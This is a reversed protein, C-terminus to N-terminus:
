TIIQDTPDPDLGFDTTIVKSKEADTALRFIYDFDQEDDGIESQQLELVFFEPDKKPKEIAHILYKSIVPVQDDPIVSDDFQITYAFSLQPAKQVGNDIWLDKLVSVPDKVNMNLFTKLDSDHTGVMSGEEKLTKLTNKLIKTDTTDISVLTDLSNTQVNLSKWNKKDNSLLLDPSINHLEFEDPLLPTISIVESFQFLDVQKEPIFTKTQIM